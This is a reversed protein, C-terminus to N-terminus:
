TNKEQKGKPMNELVEVQINPLLGGLVGMYTPPVPIDKQLYVATRYLMLWQKLSWLKRNAPMNVTWACKDKLDIEKLM